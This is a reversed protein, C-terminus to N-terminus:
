VRGPDKYQIYLSSVSSTIHSQILWCSIYKGFDQVTIVTITMHCVVTNQVTFHDTTGKRECVVQQVVLFM